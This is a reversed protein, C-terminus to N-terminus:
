GSFSITMKCIDLHNANSINNCYRLNCLVKVEVLPRRAVVSVVM